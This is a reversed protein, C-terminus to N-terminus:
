DDFWVGISRMEVGAGTRFLDKVTAVGTNLADSWAGLLREKGGKSRAVVVACDYEPSYSAFVTDSKRLAELPLAGADSTNWGSM